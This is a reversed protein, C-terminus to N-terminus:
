FIRIFVLWLQEVIKKVARQVSPEEATIYVPRLHRKIKHAFLHELIQAVARLLLKDLGRAAANRVTHM